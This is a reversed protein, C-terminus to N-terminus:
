ADGRIREMVDEFLAGNTSVAEGGHITSTGKWDTFSGGAERVIPALAACDWVSMRQDLGVEARGTAVLLHAYCDSWGRSYAADGVLRQFGQAKGPTRAMDWDTFAVLASDMRDTRSVSAPRGNWRAGLGTAASYMEDLGPMYVVGVTPEGEVEIGIMTGYLPVGHVFSKTGDIPDLIWRRGTSGPREGFEEGLIADDPFMSSIRQAMLEEAGRDAITVPSADEKVEVDVGTQFHSLTFTGAEWATEIAFDLLVAPDVEAM